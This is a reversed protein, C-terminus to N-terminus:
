IKSRGGGTLDEFREVIGARTRENRQRMVMAEKSAKKPDGSDFPPSPDYEIALQIAQAVEPGAIEAAIRFGVDFESIADPEVAFQEGVQRLPSLCPESPDAVVGFRTRRISSHDSRANAGALLSLQGQSGAGEM